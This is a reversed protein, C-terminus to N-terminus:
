ILKSYKIYWTQTKYDQCALDPWLHSQKNFTVNLTTIKVPITGENSHLAISFSEPNYSGVQLILKLTPSCFQLTLLWGKAELKSGSNSQFNCGTNTVQCRIEVRQLVIYISIIGTLVAAYVIEFQSVVWATCHLLENTPLTCWDSVDVNSDLPTVYTAQIKQYLLPRKSQHCVTSWNM